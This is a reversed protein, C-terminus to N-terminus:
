SVGKRYLDAIEQRYARMVASRRLKLSPTLEGTQDSWAVPLVTFARISEAQSVQANALDVAEQVSARLEPDLALQELDPSKDRAEAWDRALEPDLTVLAAVFPQDEGVVLCHDVLPHTRVTDELPAPVVNKGGATVLIERTRGTIRVFGDGDIEGLDGTRLWRSSGAGTPTPGADEWYGQFVHPGTVLLEGEDSVRVGTGPLPRGVKGVKVDDPSTVTAAGTTETLGYGELVPIGAGRFFHGLRDGLPAGGAVAFRLRGGVARRLDAFLLRDHLRHRSRLVLNPSRGSDLALSYAIATETAAELRRGHGEAAVRQSYQTFLKEFVRPVGLLVTPAFDHIEDLLRSMDPVYGLRIGERLATVQMVRALVHALPLMLLTAPDDEDLVERLVHAVASSEFVLNGHTLRCGQPEGTSGSTYVLTALQEPGVSSRIEEIVDVDAESPDVPDTGPLPDNVDFSWVHELAPCEHRVQVASEAHRETQALLARAGSDALIRGVQAPSSTDYLPVSVAGLCWLALDVVTWEYSTRGLIAVRDEGGIGAAHMARAWTVVDSRLRAATIPQWTRGARRHCVVKDPEDVARRFVDHTLNPSPDPDDLAPTFYERL